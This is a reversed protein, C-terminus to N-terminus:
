CGYSYAIGSPRFASRADLLEIGAGEYGTQGVIVEAWSDGDRDVVNLVLGLHEASVGGHFLFLRLMTAGRLDRRVIEGTDGRIWATAAFVQRDNVRWIARLFVLTAGDPTLRYPQADYSLSAGGRELVAQADLFARAWASAERDSGGSTKSLEEDMEARIRPLEQALLKALSRDIVRRMEATISAAPLEGLPSADRTAPAASDAVYYKSRVGAFAWAQGDDVKLVAAVMKSCQAEGLVFREVTADFAEGAATHVVWRDGPRISSPVLPQLVDPLDFILYGFKALPPPANRGLQPLSVNVDSKITAVVRQRDFRFALFTQGEGTLTAPHLVAAFAAVALAVVIRV